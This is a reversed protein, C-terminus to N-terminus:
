GHELAPHRAEIGVHRPGLVWWRAGLVHDVVHLDVTDLTILDLDVAAENQVAVPKLRLDVDPAAVTIVYQAPHVTLEFNRAALNHEGLVHNGGFVEAHEELPVFWPPLSMPM